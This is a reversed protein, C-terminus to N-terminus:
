AQWMEYIRTEAGFIHKM